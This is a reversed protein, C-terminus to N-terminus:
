TITNGCWDGTGAPFGISSLGAASTIVNASYTDGESLTVVSPNGVTPAAVVSKGSFVGGLSAITSKTLTTSGIYLEVDGTSGDIRFGAKANVSEAILGTVVSGDVLLLWSSLSEDWTVQASKAYDSSILTFGLFSDLATTFDAAQYAIGRWGDWTVPAAAGGAAYFNAPSAPITKSVNQGSIDLPEGGFVAAIDGTLTISCSPAPPDVAAAQAAAHIFMNFM